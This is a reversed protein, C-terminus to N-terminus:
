ETIVSFGFGGPGLHAGLVPTVDMSYFKDKQSIYPMALELLQAARDPANTHVLAVKQLPGLSRLIEVLRVMSGKLTRAMSMQVRAQHMQLIPKIQLLSGLSAKLHSVRGSRQLYKMTDIAAFTFSRSAMDRALKMLNELSEGAKAARAVAEVVLGTGLSLQGADFTKVVMKEMAESALVAVNHIGSLISSIHISFIADAGGDVLDKYAQLFTGLAPASTTPPVEYHPLKQYFEKRSIDVGDIYSKDPFNIYCPVVTIDLENIVEQPLDCTSDTVIKINM